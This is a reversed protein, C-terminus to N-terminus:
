ELEREKREAAKELWRELKPWDENRLLLTEWLRIVTDWNGLSWHVWGLEWVCVNTTESIDSSRSRPEMTLCNKFLRRAKHVQGEQQTKRGRRLLEEITRDIDFAGPECWEPLPEVELDACQQRAWNAGSYDHTEALAFGTLCADLDGNRCLPIYSSASESGTLDALRRWAKSSVYDECGESHDGEEGEEEKQECYSATSEEIVSREIQDLESTVGLRLQRKCHHELDSECYSGMIRVAAMRHGGTLHNFRHLGIV